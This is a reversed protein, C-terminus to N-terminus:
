NVLIQDCSVYVALPWSSRMRWTIVHAYHVAIIM